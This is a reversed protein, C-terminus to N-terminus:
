YTLNSAKTHIISTIEDMQGYWEFSFKPDTVGLVLRSVITGERAVALVPKGCTLAIGLEYGMGIAPYTCDMVFLDCTKVCNTDWEFVDQATGNVLGVFDLIEFNPRLLNKLDDISQKYETSSHTLSCGIYIKHM